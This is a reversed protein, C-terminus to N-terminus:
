SIATIKWRSGEKALTVTRLQKKGGYVSKVQATATNGAVKVSEVQLETNDIESLRNKVAAECAQVGGIKDVVPAAFDRECIKKRESSSIDSQLDAVTQAVEHEAGHFGATTTTTGCAAAGLALATLCAFALLRRM